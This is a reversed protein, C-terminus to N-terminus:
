RFRLSSFLANIQSDWHKFSKEASEPQGGPGSCFVSWTIGPTVIMEVQGSAYGQEGRIL